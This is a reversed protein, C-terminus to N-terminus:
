SMECIVKCLVVEDTQCQMECLVASYNLVVSIKIFLTSSIMLM